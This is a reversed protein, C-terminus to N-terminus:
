GAHLLTWYWWCMKHLEQKWSRRQQDFRLCQNRSGRARMRQNRSGVARMRQNGVWGSRKMSTRREVFLLGTEQRKLNHNFSKQLSCNLDMTIEGRFFQGQNVATRYNEGWLHKKIM